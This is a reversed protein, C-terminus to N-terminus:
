IKDQIDLPLDNISDLWEGYFVFRNLTIENEM